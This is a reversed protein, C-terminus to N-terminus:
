RRAHNSSRMSRLAALMLLMGAPLVWAATSQLVWLTAGSVLCWAMPVILLLWQRRARLMCLMGMSTLVTADPTMAHLEATWWSRGDFWALLPLKILAAVLLFLGIVATNSMDTQVRVQAFTAFGLLLVAQLAFALAYWDAVWHIQAYRQHMFAWAVWAWSIALLLLIARAHWSPKRWLLLVLMIIASLKALLQLPWHDRHYAAILSYWAQDTFLILDDLRYSSWHEIM